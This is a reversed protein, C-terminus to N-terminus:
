SEAVEFWKPPFLYDERTEDHVRYFGSEVDMVGYVKGTDLSITQFGGLFRAKM